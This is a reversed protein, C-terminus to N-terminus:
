TSKVPLRLGEKMSSKAKIEAERMIALTKEVGDSIYIKILDELVYVTTFVAHLIMGLTAILGTVLSRKDLYRKSKIHLFVSLSIIGIIPVVLLVPNLLVISLMLLTLFVVLPISWSLLDPPIKLGIYLSGKVLGSVRSRQWSIIGRLNEAMSVRFVANEDICYKVRNIRGDESSNKMLSFTFIYDDSRKSPPYSALNYVSIKAGMNNGPAHRSGVIKPFLNHFAHYWYFAESWISQRVVVSRGSAIDCGRDLMALIREVYERSYINESDGWIIYEYGKKRLVELIEIRAPGTGGKVSQDFWYICPIKSGMENAVLFSHDSSGGDVIYIDFCKCPPCSQTELSELAKRLGEANDKNLIVLATRRSEISIGNDLINHPYIILPYGPCDQALSAM